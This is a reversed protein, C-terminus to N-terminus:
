TRSGFTPDMNYLFRIAQARICQKDPSFTDATTGNTIKKEAAWNVPDYCYSDASVDKFPSVNETRESGCYRHLFTVAQGRTLQQDPSFAAASTGKAYGNEWAWIVAKQYYANQRLDTFPASGDPEPSGHMRWLWTIFQGRTVIKDRGFMTDSVGNTVGAKRAAYVAQYYYSGSDTVDSFLGRAALEKDNLERCLTRYWRGTTTLDDETWGSTKACSSQIYSAAENKNCLSWCCFSIGNDCLLKMWSDANATDYNGNGSADCVGFESVFVPTGAALATKLKNKINDYHTASYFHLTYMVNSFGDGSLPKQAVQDVDQSWTNTGCLIVANSGCGRIVGAIDRCYTYIDRSSGDYWPTSVPENCIEFLMNGCSAYKSAYTRFFSRAAELDDNPNYNLVHWDLIIYMGLKEAASVGEAIKQDMRDKSGQLYGGERPYLALRVTNIGWDDRLTRFADENIYEPFWQVGHTSAGRLQFPNGNKDLIVPASYASSKGVSLNGHVEYPTEGDGVMTEPDDMQADAATEAQGATETGNPTNVRSGSQVDAFILVPSLVMAFVLTMIVASVAILYFGRGSKM